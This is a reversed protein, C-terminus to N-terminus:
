PGLAILEQSDDFSVFLMQGDTALSPFNSGGYINDDSLPPVFQIYGTEQGNRANWQVLRTDKRLAYLSGGMIVSRTALITDPLRGPNLTRWTLQGSQADLATTEERNDILLVGGLLVPPWKPTSPILDPDEILWLTQQTVPDVARLKFLVEVTCIHLDFQPFRAFVLFHDATWLSESNLIEGTKADLTFLVDEGSGGQLIYLRDGDPDFAHSRRPTFQRTWLLRGDEADYARLKSNNEFYVQEVDAAVIASGNRGVAEWLLMGNRADLVRVNLSDRAPDYYICVVRGSAAVLGPTSFVSPCSYPVRWHERLGLTNDTMQRSGTPGPIPTPASPSEEQAAPTSITTSSYLGSSITPAPPSSSLCGALGAMLVIALMAQGHLYKGRDM